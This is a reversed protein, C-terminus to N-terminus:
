LPAKSSRHPRFRLQYSVPIDTRQGNQFQWAVPAKETTTHNEPRGPPGALSLVLDGNSVLQKQRVGTYTWRIRSPDAGAAVVYTGKLRREVSNYQLDIGPYIQQYTVGSFTPADTQWASPDNGIFMSVREIGQNTGVITTQPNAGVFQKRLETRAERLATELQGIRIHASVGIHSTHMYADVSPSPVSILVDTPSFLIVGQAGHTSFRM